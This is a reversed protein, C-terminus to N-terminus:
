KRDPKATKDRSDLIETLLADFYKKVKPDIKFGLGSLPQGLAVRMANHMLYRGSDVKMHIADRYLDEIKNLPARGKQIDNAVRDLLETSRTCRFERTPFTKRLKALLQSIYKPSHTM